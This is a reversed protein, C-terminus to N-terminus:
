IIGLRLARLSAAQISACGLTHATIQMTRVVSSTSVNLRQAITDAGEGESARRLIELEMPLLPQMMHKHPMKLFLDAATATAATAFLAFDTLVNAYRGSPLDQDTHLSIQLTRGEPLHAAVSIGSALGLSSCVTYLDEIGPRDHYTSKGWAVTSGYRKCHQMVPCRQGLSPDLSQWEDSTPLNDLIVIERARDDHEIFATMDATGFGVENAYNVLCALFTEPSKAELIAEHCRSLSPM